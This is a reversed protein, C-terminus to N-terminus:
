PAVAARFVRRRVEPMAEASSSERVRGERFDVRLDALRVRAAVAMSSLAM